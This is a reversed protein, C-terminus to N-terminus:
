SLYSKDRNLFWNTIRFLFSLVAYLCCAIRHEPIRRSAIKSRCNWWSWVLWTSQRLRPNVSTLDARHQYNEGCIWLDKPRRKLMPSIKAWHYVVTKILNGCSTNTLLYDTLPIVNRIHILRDILWIRVSSYIYVLDDTLSSVLCDETESVM